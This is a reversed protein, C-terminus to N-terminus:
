INELILSVFWALVGCSLLLLTLYFSNQLAEKRDLLAKKEEAERDIKIKRRLTIMERYTDIGYTYVILERLESEM